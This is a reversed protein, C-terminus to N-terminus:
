PQHPGPNLGWDQFEIPALHLYNHGPLTAVTYAPPWGGTQHICHYAGALSWRSSRVLFFMALLMSCPCSGDLFLLLKGAYSQEQIYTFQLACLYQTYLKFASYLFYVNDNNDNNAVVVPREFRFFIHHMIAYYWFHSM